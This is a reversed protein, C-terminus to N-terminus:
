RRWLLVATSLTLVSIIALWGWTSSTGESNSQIEGELKQCWERTQQQALSGKRQQEKLDELEEQVRQLNAKMSTMKAEMAFIHDRLEAIDQGRDESGRRKQKERMFEEFKANHSQQQTKLIGSSRDLKKMLADKKVPNVEFSDDRAEHHLTM